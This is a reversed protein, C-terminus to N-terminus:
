VEEIIRGKGKELPSGSQLAANTLAGPQVETLVWAGLVRIASAPAASDIFALGRKSEFVFTHTVKHENKGPLDAWYLGECALLRISLTGSQASNTLAVQCPM